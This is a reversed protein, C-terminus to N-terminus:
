AGLGFLSMMKAKDEASLSSNNISDEFMAKHTEDEIKVVTDVQEGQTMASFIVDCGALGNVIMDVEQQTVPESNEFQEDTKEIYTSIGTIAQGASALDITTIDFNNIADQVASDMEEGEPVFIEAASSIVDNIMTKADDSLNDVSSDIDVLINGLDKMATVREQPTADEKTMINMSDELNTMAGAIESVASVVDITDEISLKKGDATTGTSLMDFLWSGTKNYFQGPASQIYESLGAEAPIEIVPQGDLEIASIKEIQIALGTVPACFAFAVVFGQAVGVVAGLIRRKRLGKRIFIKLIPFVIIWSVFLLGAFIVFFGAFGIIIEVLVVIMDQLAVPLDSGMSNVLSDALTEGGVDLNMIINTFTSRLALALLLSAVVLLARLFSRNFGRLFGLLFGAIICFATIGLVAMTAYGM